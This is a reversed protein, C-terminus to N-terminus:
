FITAAMFRLFPGVGRFLFETPSFRRGKVPFHSSAILPSLPRPVVYERTEIDKWAFPQDM